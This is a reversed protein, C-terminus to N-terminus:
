VTTNWAAVLILKEIEVGFVPRKKRSLNSQQNKFSAVINAFGNYVISIHRWLSGGAKVIVNYM